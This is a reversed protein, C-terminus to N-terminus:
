LDDREGIVVTPTKSLENDPVCTIRMGWGEWTSVMKGFEQWTLVKDDIEISPGENQEDWGVICRIVDGKAVWQCCQKDYSIQPKGEPIEIAIHEYSKIMEITKRAIDNHIELLELDTMNTTDEGVEIIQGGHDRGPYSFHVATGERTIQVDQLTAIFPKPRAM